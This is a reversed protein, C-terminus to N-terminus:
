GVFSVTFSPSRSLVDEVAVEVEGRGRPLDTINVDARPPGANFVVVKGVM